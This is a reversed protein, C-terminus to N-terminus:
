RIPSRDVIAAQIMSMTSAAEERAGGIRVTRLADWLDDTNERGIWVDLQQLQTALASMQRQLLADPRPKVIIKTPPKKVVPTTVEPPVDLQEVKEITQTPELRRM